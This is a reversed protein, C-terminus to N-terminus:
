ETQLAGRSGRTKAWQEANERRDAELEAMAEAAGPFPQGSGLVFFPPPEGGCDFSEDREIQRQVKGGTPFIAPLPGRPDDCAEAPAPTAELQELERRHKAQLWGFPVACYVCVKSDVFKHSCSPDVEIGDIHMPCRTCLHSGPVFHHECPRGSNNRVYQFATYWTWKDVQDDHEAELERRKEDALDMLQACWDQVKPHPERTHLEVPANLERARDLCRLFICVMSEGEDVFEDGLARALELMDAKGVKRGSM